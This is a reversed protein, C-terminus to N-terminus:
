TKGEAVTQEAREISGNGSESLFEGVPALWELHSCFVRFTVLIPVAVIVGPIGWVWAWFALALLIAVANLQLRRSLINPSVIQTEIGICVAYALPALLAYGLSDFVVISVLGSLAMGAIPGIYPIFNLVFVIFGWLYPTPLGLLQFSVAVVLGLGANIATTTLLYASVEREVDYVIRLANKKDTLTPLARVLKEYFLDGSAMLFIAFVLTSILIIFFNVPYSAALSVLAPLAPQKVVVEQVDAGKAPNAADQIKETLIVFDDFSDRIRAIKQMFTQQIQPADAIWGAIPGSALYAAALGALMLIAAFGTAAAWAPVNHRALRRIVPRFTLAIFTAFVVPLLFDRAFYTAAVAGLILLGILATRSQRLYAAAHDDRRGAAM